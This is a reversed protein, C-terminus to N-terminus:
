SLREAILFQNIYGGVLKTYHGTQDVAAGTVYYESGDMDLIAINPSQHIADAVEFVKSACVELNDIIIDNIRAKNWRFAKYIM